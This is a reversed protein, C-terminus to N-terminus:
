YLPKGSERASVKVQKTGDAGEGGPRGSRGSRGAVCRGGVIRPDACARRLAGAEIGALGGTGGGDAWGGAEVPYPRSARSGM